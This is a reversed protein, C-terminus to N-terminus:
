SQNSQPPRIPYGDPDKGRVRRWWVQFGLANITVKFLRRMTGAPCDLPRVGHWSHKTRQFLLSHNGCPESSAVVKLDDFSPSSHTRFRDGGDMILTQGGWAPDWREQNFYFLHTAIKRAADCHPSVSCGKWAYHWEFTLLFSQAGIMRHLFSQYLEGQLECLFQEWPKPLPLGPQYHLSYRDHSAQGYARKVGEDRNFLSVDPMDAALQVFGEDTLTKQMKLWPYPQQQRFSEPSTATLSDRNLFQVRM